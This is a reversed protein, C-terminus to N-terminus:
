PTYNVQVGVYDLRFDRSNNDSVDTIRIRFTSSGLQAPTWSAQGWLDTAGGLTYTALSVSTISVAQATTWTVGSDGSLQACIRNTGSTADIRATVHVTIGDVSTVSAPM